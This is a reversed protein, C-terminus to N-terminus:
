EVRIKEKKKIELFYFLILLYKLIIETFCFFDNLQNLSM